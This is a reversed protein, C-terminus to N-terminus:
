TNRPAESSAMGLGSHVRRREEGRRKKCTRCARSRGGNVLVTNELTYLHGQPCHTKRANIATPNRSGRLTNEAGTVVELHAPGQENAIAKVCATVECLHDPVHGEPIPGVLLLWAVRHAKEVKRGIKFHGYGKGHQARKWIWCPGLDPHKEPIPGAKNVKAWFREDLTAKAM